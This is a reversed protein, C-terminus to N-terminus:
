GSAPRCASVADAFTGAVVAPSFREIVSRRLPAARRRAAGIDNAVERLLEVAHPVSPEAWRQDPGYSTPTMHEVPVLEHDVLWAHAPDLYELFGGWSTAIVPNGYAAADFAGLGWGEGRSLSVYCDGRTHLGAIRDEGWEDVALVVRAPRRYRSVLHAVQWGTTWAMPNGIGWEAAPPMETWRGSKVVLAVPDDGDFADLFAKVTHFVAKREDWRGITYFVLLEDDLGLAAGGDGPRPDCAVHPVVEIPVTVGSGAFVDRNWRSPVIVRDMADLLAPWHPPLRDTEWVTHAVLPGDVARRVAPYYEPVLHAVTLWPGDVVPGGGDDRSHTALGAHPDDPLGSWRRLEVLAGRGRLASVLRYGADGYGTRDDEAVYRLALPHAAAPESAAM